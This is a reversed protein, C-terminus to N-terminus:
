SPEKNSDLQLFSVLNSCGGANLKRSFRYNPNEADGYIGKASQRYQPRRKENGRESPSLIREM